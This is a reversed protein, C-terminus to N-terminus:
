TVPISDWLVLCDCQGEATGPWQVHGATAGRAWQDTEAPRDVIFVVVQTWTIRRCWFYFLQQINVIACLVVLQIFVLKTDSPVNICVTRNYSM